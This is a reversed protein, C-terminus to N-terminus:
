IFFDGFQFTELVGNLQDMILNRNSELATRMFHLPVRAKFPNPGNTVKEAWAAFEPDIAMLWELNVGALKGYTRHVKDDLGLYQGAPRGTIADDNASRLENWYTSAKYSVLEPNDEDMESGSGWEAIFAQWADTGVQGTVMGDEAMKVLGGHLSGRVAEYFEDSGLSTKANSLITDCLKEVIAEVKQKFAEYAGDGDFSLLQELAM